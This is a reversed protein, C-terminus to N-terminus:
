TSTEDRTELESSMNAYAYPGFFWHTVNKSAHIMADM